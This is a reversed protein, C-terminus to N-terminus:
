QPEAGGSYSVRSATSIRTPTLRKIFVDENTKNNIMDCLASLRRLHISDMTLFKHYALYDELNYMSPYIESSIKDIKPQIDGMNDDLWGILKGNYHQLSETIANRFTSLQSSNPEIKELESLKKAANHLTAIQELKDVSDRIQVVLEDRNNVWIDHVVAIEIGELNQGETVSFIAKQEGDTKMQSQVYKYLGDLTVIGTKEDSARGDLGELLHYTFSGHFHPNKDTLDTIEIERSKQNAQSSALIIRNEGSIKLHGEFEEKNIPSIPLSKEGKTAIGSYCCDLIMVVSGKNKSKSVTERLEGMNIGCTFPEELLMDYPAIYGENYADVFGHGSFYFLVLDYPDTKWFTDNIAKRIKNCTAGQGVLYSQIQFSGINTDKLRQHIEKADNLAGPLKPINQDLYENIGVIVALRNGKLM